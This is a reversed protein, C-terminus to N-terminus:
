FPVAQANSFRGEQGVELSLVIAIVSSAGEGIEAEPAAVTLREGASEELFAEPM